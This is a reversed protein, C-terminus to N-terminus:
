PSKKIEFDSSFYRSCISVKDSFGLFNRSALQKVNERFQKAAPSYLFSTFMLRLINQRLKDKGNKLFISNRMLNRQQL